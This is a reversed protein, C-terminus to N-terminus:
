QYEFAVIDIYFGLGLGGLILGIANDCMPSSYYGPSLCSFIRCTSSSLHAHLDVQAIYAEM